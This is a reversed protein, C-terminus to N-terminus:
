NKGIRKDLSESACKSKKGCKCNKIIELNKTFTCYKIREGRSNRKRSARRTTRCNGYFGDINTTSSPIKTNTLPSKLSNELKENQSLQHYRKKMLKDLNCYFKVRINKVKHKTCCSQKNKTGCTDVCFNLRYEKKTTCGAYTIKTRRKPKILINDKIRCFKRQSSFNNTQDGAYTLPESTPAVTFYHSSVVTTKSTIKAIESIKEKKEKKIRPEVSSKGKKLVKPVANVRRTMLAATKPRRDWRKESTPSVASVLFNRSHRRSFREGRKRATESSFGHATNKLVIPMPSVSLCFKDHCLRTERKFNLCNSDTIYRVQMGLGCSKSCHTWKTNRSCTTPVTEYDQDPQDEYQHYHESQTLTASANKSNLDKAKGFFYDSQRKGNLEKPTNGVTKLIEIADQQGDKSMRSFEQNIAFDYDLNLGTDYGAIHNGRSRGLTRLTHSMSSSTGILFAQLFYLLTM